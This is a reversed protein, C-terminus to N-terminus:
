LIKKINKNVAEFAGNMKPRYPELNHDFIKFQARLADIMNNNLNRSNDTIISKPFAM